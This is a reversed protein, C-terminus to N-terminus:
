KGGKHKRAYSFAGMLAAKYASNREVLASKAANNYKNQAGQMRSLFSSYLRLAAVARQHRGDNYKYSNGGIANTEQRNGNEDPKLNELEKRSKDVQKIAANYLKDNDSIMKDYANVTSISKKLAEIMNNMMSAVGIEEKDSEDDAGGRMKKWLAKDYEDADISTDGSLDRIRSLYDNEYDEKVKDESNSETKSNRKIATIAADVESTKALAVSALDKNADLAKELDVYKYMKVKYEKLDASNLAKLEKEYTDVWKKDNGFIGTLYRKINHLFEKVKDKLGIFFQKIKEFADAIAGEMIAAQSSEEVCSAGELAAQIECTNVTYFQAEFIDRLAEACEMAILGAGNEHDYHRQLKGGIGFTAGEMVMTALNSM